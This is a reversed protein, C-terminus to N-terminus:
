DETESKLVELFDSVKATINDMFDNADELTQCIDKLKDHVILRQATSIVSEDKVGSKTSKLLESMSRIKGSDKADIADQLMIQNAKFMYGWKQEKTLNLYDFDNLLSYVIGGYDQFGPGDPGSRELALKLASLKSAFEEEVTLERVEEVQHSLQALKKMVPKKTEEIYAKIWQVFNSPTFIVPQGQATYQGDLGNELARFIESSTLNPFKMLDGNLERNIVKQEDEDKPKSGLRTSAKLVISPIMRAMQESTMQCIKPNKDATLSASVISIESQSLKRAVQEPVTNEFADRITLNSM